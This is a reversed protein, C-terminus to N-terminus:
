HLFSASHSQRECVGLIQSSRLPRSLLHAPCIHCPDQVNSAKLLGLTKVETWRIGVAQTDMRTRVVWVDGCMELSAKPDAEAPSLVESHHRSSHVHCCPFCYFFFLSSALLSSSPCIVFSSTLLFPFLRVPSFIHNRFGSDIQNGCGQPIRTGKAMRAM